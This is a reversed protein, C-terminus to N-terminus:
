SGVTTLPQRVVRHNVLSKDLSYGVKQKIDALIPELGIHGGLICYTPLALPNLSQRLWAPSLRTAASSDWPWPTIGKPAPSLGRLTCVGKIAQGCGNQTQRCSKPGSSMVTWEHASGFGTHGETQWVSVSIREMSVSKWTSTRRNQLWIVEHVIRFKDRIPWVCLSFLSFM